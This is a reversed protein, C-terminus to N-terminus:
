HFHQAFLTAVGRVSTLASVESWRRTERTVREMTERKREQRGARILVKEHDALTHKGKFPSIDYGTRLFFRASSEYNKNCPTPSYM